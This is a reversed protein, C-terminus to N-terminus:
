AGDTRSHNNWFREVAKQSINKNSGQSYRARYYNFLSFEGEDMIYTDPSAQIRQWLAQMAQEITAVADAPESGPESDRVRRLAQMVAASLRGAM